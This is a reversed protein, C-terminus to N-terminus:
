IFEEDLGYKRAANNLNKQELNLRQRLERLKKKNRTKHIEKSIFDVTQDIILYENHLSDLSDIM